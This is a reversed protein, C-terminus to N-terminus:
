QWVEAGSEALSSVELSICQQLLLFFLHVDAPRHAQRLRQMTARVPLRRSAVPIAALSTTLGQLVAQSRVMDAVGHCVSACLEAEGTQRM